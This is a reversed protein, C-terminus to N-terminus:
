ASRKAYRGLLFVGVAFVIGAIVVYAKPIGSAAAEEPLPMFAPPGPARSWWPRVLRIGKSRRGMARLADAFKRAPSLRDKEWRVHGGLYGVIVGEGGHNWEEDFALPWEPAERQSLGSVFCFSADEEPRERAPWWSSRMKSEMNACFLIRADRVYYRLFDAPLGPGGVSRPLNKMKEEALELALKPHERRPVVGRSDIARKATYGMLALLGVIMAYTGVVALWPGVPREYDLAM